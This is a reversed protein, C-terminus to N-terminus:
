GGPVVLEAGSLDVNFIKSGGGDITRIKLPDAEM